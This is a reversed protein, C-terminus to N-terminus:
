AEDSRRKVNDFSNAHDLLTTNLQESTMVSERIRVFQSREADWDRDLHEMPLGTVKRALETLSQRWNPDIISEDVAGLRVAFCCFIAGLLVEHLALDTMAPHSSPKFRPKVRGDETFLYPLTYAATPHAMDSARQYFTDYALKSGEGLRQAISKRVRGDPIWHERFVWKDAEEPEKALVRALGASEYAGRLLTRAQGVYGSKALNTAAELDTYARTFCALAAVVNSHM